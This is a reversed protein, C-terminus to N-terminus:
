SHSTDVLKFLTLAAGGGVSKDLAVTAYGDLGLLPDVSDIMRLPLSQVLLDKPWIGLRKLAPDRVLETSDSIM